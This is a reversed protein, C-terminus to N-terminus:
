NAIGVPWPMARPGALVPPKPVFGRHFELEPPAGLRTDQASVRGSSGGLRQSNTLLPLPSRCQLPGDKKQVAAARKPVVGLENSCVVCQIPAATRRVDTSWNALLPLPSGCELDM